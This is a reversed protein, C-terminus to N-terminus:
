NKGGFLDTSHFINKFSADCNRREIREKNNETKLTKKCETIHPMISIFHATM